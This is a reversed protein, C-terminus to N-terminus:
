KMTLRARKGSERTNTKDLAIYLKQLALLTASKGACACLAVLLGHLSALTEKTGIERM